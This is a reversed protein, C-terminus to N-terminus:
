VGLHPDALFMTYGANKAGPAFCIPRDITRDIPKCQNENAKMTKERVGVARIRPPIGAPKVRPRIGAPKICPLIGAPRIRPPIWPTAYASRRKRRSAM